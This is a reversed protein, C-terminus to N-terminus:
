ILAKCLLHYPIHNSGLKEAVCNEVEKNKTVSDTMFNDINEWLTKASLDQSLVERGAIALQELTGIILDTINVCDEYAFFLPWLGGM